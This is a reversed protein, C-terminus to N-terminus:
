LPWTTIYLRDGFRQTLILAAQESIDNYAVSLKTLGALYPSEALAEAGTESLRPAVVPDSSFLQGYNGIILSRLNALAPCAALARLGVETIGNDVLILGLLRDLYPSHVLELCNAANMSLIHLFQIPTAAFFADAFERFFKWRYVDAGSVFGRWFRQWSVGQLRPLQHRWPDGYQGLLRGERARLLEYRPADVPLQSREIQIRIFRARALRAEDGQEELWDAYILRPADDAPHAAIDHLFAEELNM